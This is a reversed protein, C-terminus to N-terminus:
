TACLPMNWVGNLPAVASPKGASRILRFTTPCYAELRPPFMAAGMRALLLLYERHGNWFGRRGLSRGLVYAPCVSAQSLTPRNRETKRSPLPQSMVALNLMLYVARRPHRSTPRSRGQWEPRLPGAVAFLAGKSAAIPLQQRDARTAMRRADSPIMAPSASMGMSPWSPAYRVTVFSAAAFRRRAPRESVCAFSRIGSSHNSIHHVALM